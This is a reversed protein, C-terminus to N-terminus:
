QAKYRTDARSAVYESQLLMSDFAQNQIGAMNELRFAFTALFGLFLLNYKVHKEDICNQALRLAYIVALLHSHHSM